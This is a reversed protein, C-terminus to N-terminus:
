SSARAKIGVFLDRMLGHERAEYVRVESFMGREEMIRRVWARDIDDPLRGKYGPESAYGMELFCCQKTKAFLWELCAIGREVSEVMMWQFVSFASTVDVLRDRTAHLYRHADIHTYVNFDRRVFSDLLRAVKIEREAADIGEAHFGLKRLHHCFYGTNCGVDLYTVRGRAEGGPLCGGDRLVRTVIEARRKSDPRVITWDAYEELEIPQYLQKVGLYPAPQTLLDLVDQRAVVRLQQECAACISLTRDRDPLLVYTSAEVDHCRQCKM